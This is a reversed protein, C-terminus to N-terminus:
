LLGFYQCVTIFATIALALLIGIMDRDSEEQGTNAMYDFGDQDTTHKNITM